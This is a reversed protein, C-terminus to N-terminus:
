KLFETMVTLVEVSNESLTIVEHAVDEVRSDTALAGFVVYRDQIRSFSSLPMPINMDLMMELMEVKAEPKVEEELWLYAICLIQTNTASIYIPIEEFGEVVVQLVEVDGSIMQCDFKYGEMSLNSFHLGLDQLNM